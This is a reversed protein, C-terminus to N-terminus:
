GGVNDPPLSTRIDRAAQEALLKVLGTLVHDIAPRLKPEAVGAVNTALPSPKSITRRELM